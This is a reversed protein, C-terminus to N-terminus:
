FRISYRIYPLFPLMTVQYVRKEEVGTNADSVLSSYNYFANKRNYVNYVGFSLTRDFRKKKKDFNLGVDLRHYAPLQYGNRITFNRIIDSEYLENGVQPSPNPDGLILPNYYSQDLNTVNIGSAFVWIAGLSIHKSIQWNATLSLDHRRDYKYPFPEGGMIEEFQRTNKSLTYAVSGTVKGSSKEALFELGFATGDGSIVDREWNNDNMQLEAGEAYEVLNNMEKYFGELSFSIGPRFKTKVGAAAQWSSEPPIVGTSPVWSDTPLGV